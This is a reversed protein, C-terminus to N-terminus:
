NGPSPPATGELGKVQFVFEGLGHEPLTSQGPTQGWSSAMPQIYTVLEPFTVYGDGNLDALQQELGELLHGTFLSHGGAGGDAVRQDKGGATLVQRASRKLIEGIYNPRKPDVGDGSRAGLLGGYCADMIFLQHKAKGMKTSQVALEEMSIYQNSRVVGATEIFPVIYGWDKGASEETHGHGAFFVLVRDNAALRPALENQMAGIIADKTAKSDPLTTVSFGQRELFAAMGEADKRAYKLDPWNSPPYKDIGIVLAYSREYWRTGDNGGEGTSIVGRVAGGTDPGSTDPGVARWAVQWGVWLATATLAGVVLYAPIRSGPEVIVIAGPVDRLKGGTPSNANISAAGPGVAGPKMLWDIPNGNPIWFVALRNGVVKAAVPQPSDKPATLVYGAPLLIGALSADGAEVWRYLAGGPAEGLFKPSVAPTQERVSGKSERIHIVGGAVPAFGRRPRVSTWDVSLRGGTSWAEHTMGGLLHNSLALEVVLVTRGPSHNPM